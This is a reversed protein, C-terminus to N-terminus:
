ISFDFVDVGTKKINENSIIFGAKTSWGNDESYSNGTFLSPCVQRRCDINDDQIVSFNNVQSASLKQIRSHLHGETIFNFVGKEGYMWCIEQTSKKKTLGLHGHNLIYNVSDVKHTLVDRKFEIDYGIIDLAWAVLESAGGDTDEDNSSTVRCHNGAVMKISGLNNVRKLFHKQFLKVFLKVASVGFMGKDLGKWSNKHNLGTFSEIIDGLLHVHVVDYGLSNVRDSAIELMECLISISFEPSINMSSIYAGFHFDTLTIVGKKKGKKVVVPRKFGKLQKKMESIWDFSAVEEDSQKFLINYFPIGTHSVLKCSKVDQRPLSYYDCYEDLDMVKGHENFASMISTEIDKKEDLRDDKQLSSWQESSIYYRATKRGKETPKLELGLKEAQETTLRKRFKM